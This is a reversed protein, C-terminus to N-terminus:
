VSIESKSKAISFLAREVDVARFRNMEAGSVDRWSLHCLNLEAKILNLAECFASFRIEAKKNSENNSKIIKKVFDSGLLNTFTGASLHKTIKDDLVGVNEPDLFALYKTGFSVGVHPLKRIIRLATSYDSKSLSELAQQIISVSQYKGIESLSLKFNKSNGNALWDCRIKSKAGSTKYGWYMVSFIGLIVEDEIDSTLCQKHHDDLRLTNEFEIEAYASSWESFNNLKSRGVLGVHPYSYANRAKVYENIQM